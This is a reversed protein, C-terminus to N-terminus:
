RSEHVTTAMKAKSVNVSFCKETSFDASGAIVTQSPLVAYAVVQVDPAMDPSVSLKFSM